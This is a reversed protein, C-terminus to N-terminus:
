RHRRPSLVGLAAPGGPRVRQELVIGLEAEAKAQRCVLVKLQRRVSARSSAGATPPSSTRDIRSAGCTCSDSIRACRARM